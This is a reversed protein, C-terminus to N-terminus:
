SMYQHTFHFRMCVMILSSMLVMYNVHKTATHNLVVLEKLLPDPNVAFPSLDQILRGSLARYLHLQCHRRLIHSDGLGYSPATTCTYIDLVHYREVLMRVEELNKEKMIPYVITNGSGRESSGM